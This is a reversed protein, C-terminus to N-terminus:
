RFLMETVKVSGPKAAPIPNATATPAQEGVDLLGVLIDAMMVMRVLDSVASPDDHHHTCAEIIPEPLRWAIALEAGARRHYRHVLARIGEAGEVPDPYAALIRYIRAEGIDHLLGCLYDYEYRLRLKQSISRMALGTLVSRRFSEGVREQYRPMGATSNAYAVQFLLDRTGSLGLRIIAGRTTSVRVARTYIVSNAVALLRAAIPPDGEVLEALKKMDSNPDNAFRLASQAVHPLVPLAARGGDLERLLKPELTAITVEKQPEMTALAPDM